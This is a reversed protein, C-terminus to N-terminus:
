NFCNENNQKYTIDSFQALWLNIEAEPLRVNTYIKHQICEELSDIQDNFVNLNFDKGMEIARNDVAIIVTRRNFQMARVGAHLRTGVFDLKESSSLLNDLASLTPRLINVRQDLFQNAYTLDRSGQPWFYIKKYLKKLIEFLKSDRDLNPKYDTITMLVNESKIEPTKDCVDQTVNWLTPCGTNIVNKIGIDNLKKLTYSDRVSHLYHPSLVKQLLSVTYQNPEDQYQWWGVGMLVNKNTLEHCSSDIRWQNYTDMNSSLLNTGGVICISINNMVQKGMEGLYDHTPFSIIHDYKIVKRLNRWVADMIIYDGNNASMVSTDYMGFM